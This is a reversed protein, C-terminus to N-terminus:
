VQGLKILGETVAIDVGGATVDLVKAIQEIPLGIIFFLVLVDLPLRGSQIVFDKWRNFNLEAPLQLWSPLQDSNNATIIVKNQLRLKIATKWVEDVPKSWNLKELTFQTKSTCLTTLYLFMRLQSELALSSM